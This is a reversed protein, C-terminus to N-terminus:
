GEKIEEYLEETTKPTQLEEVTPLTDDPGLAQESLCSM